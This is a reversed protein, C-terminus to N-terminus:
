EEDGIYKYNENLDSKLDEYKEELGGYTTILDEIACILNRSSIYSEMIEGTLKDRLVIREYDCQTIDELKNIIEEKISILDEM